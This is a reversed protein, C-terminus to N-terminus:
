ALAISMQWVVVAPAIPPVGPVADSPSKTTLGLARAQGAKIQEVWNPLVDFM